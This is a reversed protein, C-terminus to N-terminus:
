PPGTENQNPFRNSFADWDVDGWDEPIANETKKVPLGTSKGATPKVHTKVRKADNSVNKRFAKSCFILGMIGLPILLWAISSLLSGSQSPFPGM